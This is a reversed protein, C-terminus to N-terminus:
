RAILRNRRFERKVPRLSEIKAGRVRVICKRDRRAVIRDIDIDGNTVIYEVEWVQSTAVWYIGFCSLAVVLFGAMPFLWLVAASSVVGGLVTALILLARKADLTQKVLQESFSDMY